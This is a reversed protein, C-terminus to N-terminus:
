QRCWRRADRESGGGMARLCYIREEVSSAGEADSHYGITPALAALTTRRTSSRQFHRELTVDIFLLDCQGDRNTGFIILLIRCVEQPNEKDDLAIVEEALLVM